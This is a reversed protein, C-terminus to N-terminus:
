KVTNWSRRVTATYGTDPVAPIQASVLIAGLIMATTCTMVSKM